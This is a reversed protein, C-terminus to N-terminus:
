KIEYGKEALLDALCYGCLGYGQIALIKAEEENEALVYFTATNWLCSPCKAEDGLGIDRVKVKFVKTM